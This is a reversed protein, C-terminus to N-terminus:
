RLPVPAVVEEMAMVVGRVESATSHDLLTLKIKCVIPRGRRNAADVLFEAKSSGDQTKLFARIPETLKEVPLGCDISMLSNGLVEDESLGWLERAQNTWNIIKFHLDIVIVAAGLSALISQLFSNTNNLEGSISRLENNTTELEENTSQLEENMTELEENTSQLEENTTELEENTSQLEESTTELEEHASQLEENTTELEQNARQLEDQIKYYTTVDTFTISTGVRNEENTSLAAVEIDLIQVRGDPLNRQVKAIKIPHGEEHAKDILSRLEIPRYSLELDKLLRGTDLHTLGFLTRARQNALVMVGELDVVIQPVLSADFCLERMRPHPGANEADEVTPSQAMLMMRERTGSKTVKKFFRHKLEVAQFLNSYSLLLEAKGLFLYGLDDLAYHFRNIIRAQTEANLYMLTNRCILLDVHSIPADNVLDHRGYIISRRLEPHFAFKAGVSVFYKARLETPVSQLQAETYTAARAQVIAEEDVDTAYIKVTKQFEQFGLAECFLMALTYAEEGSACGADWIRISERNRGKILSPIVVASLYKWAEEDRFFSTVNILITNFLHYFEEPHVELFDVYDIFDKVNVAEMRRITRRTLSSRKYGTFDFGRTKKLYDLLAELKPDYEENNMKEM